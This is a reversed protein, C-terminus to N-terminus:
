GRKVGDQLHNGTRIGIEHSMMRALQEAIGVWESYTAIPIGNERAKESARAESDHCPAVHFLCGKVPDQSVM